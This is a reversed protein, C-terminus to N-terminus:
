HYPTTVSIVDSFNKIEGSAFHKIRDRNTSLNSMFRRIEGSLHKMEGGTEPTIETVLPLEGHKIFHVTTSFLSM